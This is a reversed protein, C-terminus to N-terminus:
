RNLQVDVFDGNPPSGSGWLPSIGVGPKVLWRRRGERIGSDNHDTGGGTGMTSSGGQALMDIDELHLERRDDGLHYKIAQSSFYAEYQIYKSALRSVQDSDPFVVDNLRAYIKNLFWCPFLQAAICCGENHLFVKWRLKFYAAHLELGAPTEHNRRGAPSNDFNTSLYL